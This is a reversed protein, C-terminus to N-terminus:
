KVSIANGKQALVPHFILNKNCLSGAHPYLLLIHLYRDFIKSKWALMKGKTTHWAGVLKAQQKKSIHVSKALSM